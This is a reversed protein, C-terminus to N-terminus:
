ISVRIYSENETAGYVEYATILYMSQEADYKFKSTM